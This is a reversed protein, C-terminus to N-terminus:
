ASGEAGVRSTICELLQGRSRELLKYVANPTLQLSEAVSQVSSGRYHRKLVVRSRQPLRKLCDKLAAGRSNDGPTAQSRAALQDLVSSDLRSVSRKRSRFFGRIHNRAIGCAWPFFEQSQDFRERSEWLSLTTQQFLEEADVIQPVQAVIFRFLRHRCKDLSVTFRHEDMM